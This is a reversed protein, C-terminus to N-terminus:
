ANIKDVPITYYFVAGNPEKNEAWIQGGLMQIFDRCMSLAIGAGHQTPSSFQNSVLFLKSITEASMGPGNDSVTVTLNTSDQTASIVISGGEPSYRIANSLLNRNVFQLIERDSSITMDQPVQNSLTIKKEELLQHFLVASENFLEHLALTEAKFQYGSLQQKIWQLITDFSELMRTADKEIEGYFQEMETETFGSNDRMMRAISITSILPARFDHALISILKNKFEDAEQLTNNQEQIQKNLQAQRHEHRRSLHYLRYIIIILLISVMCGCILLWIKTKNSKNTIGLLTNDDQIENYKIYDGIFKKLNVNEAALATEILRHVRIIEDKNGSLETYALIVKLVKVKLYVYGNKQALQYAQNYYSLISDPKNSYYDAYLGLSNIEFFEMGAKRSESLSQKILPLAEQRHGSNLLNNAQLQMMVILMRKDHYRSAIEQSKDVYYRASDASLASNVICYNAYLISMISDKQLKKGTQIAQRSFMKAHVSDAIGLYVTSMNMLVMAANTTDSQERYAPLIKSFLELSERFLGKLYLASAIVNDANTKGKLYHLRIAIAKSKMGYYFCSDPNKLHYLMGIRNLSNVLQISDKIFPLKRQEQQILVSQGQAYNNCLFFLLIPILYQISKPLRM